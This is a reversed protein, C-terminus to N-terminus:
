TTNICNEHDENNQNAGLLALARIRQQLRHLCGIGDTTAEVDVRRSSVKPFFQKKLLTKSKLKTNYHRLFSRLSHPNRAHNQQHKHQYARVVRIQTLHTLNHGGSGRLVNHGLHNRRLCCYIANDTVLGVSLRHKRLQRVQSGPVKNFFSGNGHFAKFTTLTSWCHWKNKEGM